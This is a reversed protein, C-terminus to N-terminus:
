TPSYAGSRCYGNRRMSSWPQGIEPLQSTQTPESISCVLENKLMVPYVNRIVPHGPLRWGDAELPGGERAGNDDVPFNTIRHQVCVFPRCRSASGISM